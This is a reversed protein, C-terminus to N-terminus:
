KETYGVATNVTTIMNGMIYRPSIKKYSSMQIKHGGKVMRERDRMGM